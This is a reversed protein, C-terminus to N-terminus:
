MAKEKEVESSKEEKNGKKLIKFSFYFVLLSLVVLISETIIFNNIYKHLIAVSNVANHIIISLFLYLINNEQFTKYVINSLSIQLLIANFREVASMMAMAFTIDDDIIGREIFLDKLIINMAVSVGVFISEFGGHGIGYSIPIIINDKNQDSFLKKLCIYKGTEEFGGAANAAIVKFITLHDQMYQKLIIITLSELSVSLIFGLCGILIHKIKANYFIKSMISLFFPYLIEFSSATIIGPYSLYIEKQANNEM